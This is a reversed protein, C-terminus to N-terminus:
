RRLSSCFPSVVPVQELVREEGGDFPGQEVTGRSCKPDGSGAPEPVAGVADQVRHPRKVDHGGVGRRAFGVTDGRTPVLRCRRSDQDGTCIRPVSHHVSGHVPRLPRIPALRPRHHLPDCRPSCPRDPSHPSNPDLPHIPRRWPLNPLPLPRLPRRLNRRQPSPCLRGTSCRMTLVRMLSSSFILSVMQSFVRRLDSCSLM